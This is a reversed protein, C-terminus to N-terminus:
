RCEALVFEYNTEAWKNSEYNKANFVIGISEKGSKSVITWPNGTWESATGVMPPTGVFKVSLKDGTVSGTFKAVEKKDSDPEKSMAKGTVKNDPMYNITIVTSYKLGDNTYCKQVATQKAVDSLNEKSPVTTIAVATDAPKDTADKKKASNNCAVFFIALCAILFTKFNSQTQM